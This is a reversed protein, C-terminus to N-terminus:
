NGQDKKIIGIRQMSTKKPCSCNLKMRTDLARKAFNTTLTPEGENQGPEVEVYGLDVLTKISLSSIRFDIGRDFYGVMLEDWFGYYDVSGGSNSSSPRYDIEWHGGVTGPGGSDELPVFSRPLGTIQNYAAQANAYATGSLLNDVPVVAGQPEFFPDWYVGIGIAHGLEHTLINVWDCDDFMSEYALNIYLDFSLTNFKVGPGVSILDVYEYPGCAAIYGASLSNVFTVSNLRIGSWGPAMTSIASHVQQDFKVLRMWRTAAVDLYQGWKIWMGLDVGPPQLWSSTDFLRPLGQQNDPLHYECPRLLAPCTPREADICNLEPTVFPIPPERGSCLAECGECAGDVVVSRIQKVGGNYLEDAGVERYQYDIYEVENKGEEFAESTIDVIGADCSIAFVRYSVHGHKFFIEERGEIACPLPACFLDDCPTAVATGNLSPTGTKSQVCGALVEPKYAYNTYLEIRDCYDGSETPGYLFMLYQCRNYDNVPINGCGTTNDYQPCWSQSWDQEALFGATFGFMNSIDDCCVIEAPASGTESQGWYLEINANTADCFQPCYNKPRLECLNGKVQVCGVASGDPNLGSSTNGGSCGGWVTASGCSEWTTYNHEEWVFWDCDMIKDQSKPWKINEPNFGDKVKILNLVGDLSFYPGAQKGDTTYNAGKLEGQYIRALQHKQVYPCMTSEYKEVPINKWEEGERVNIRCPSSTSSSSLVQCSVRRTGQSHCGQDPFYCTRECEFCPQPQAPNLAINVGWNIWRENMCDSSEDWAIGKSDLFEEFKEIAQAILPRDMSGSIDIIIFVKNSQLGLWIGKGYREEISTILHYYFADQSSEYSEVPRFAQIVNEEPVPMEPQECCKQDGSACDDDKGELALKPYIPKPFASNWINFVLYNIQTNKAHFNWYNIDQKWYNGFDQHTLSQKVYNPHSEDIFGLILPGDLFVPVLSSSSSSSSSSSCAAGTCNPDDLLGIYSCCNGAEICPDGTEPCGVLVLECEQTDCNWRYCACDVFIGGCNIQCHSMDEYTEVIRHIAPDYQDEYICFSNPESM